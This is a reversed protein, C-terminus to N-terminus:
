DRRRRNEIVALGLCDDERVGSESAWLQTVGYGAAEIRRIAGAVTGGAYLPDHILILGSPSVLRAALQFEEWVHDETHVSDLLAADYQEGAELAATLGEVAGTIRAEMCERINSPLLSWLHDREPFSRLDLTVVRGGQRHAVASALCAVSVGRATGTEIVRVCGNARVLYHLLALLPLVATDRVVAGSADTTGYFSWAMAGLGHWGIWRRLSGLFEGYADNYGAPGAATLPESRSYRGRWELLKQKGRGSFHVVRVPKGRFSASLRAGEERMEIDQVHLQVNYSDDLKVGCDLRALALNFIFQNRWWVDNRREIWQPARPMARVAGDLALLAARSGAFLGDNVIMPYAAEGPTLELEAAEQDNGFYMRRFSDHLTACDRGNGELGVVISGDPCAEVAGLVPKLDGLILMDADLCIFEEADIARAASYLIAKSMPDIRALSRCPIATAGYKAAVRYCEVGGNLVFVAVLADHCNSNAYFSGLMDDLYSEFGPSVVTAVCYRTRPLVNPIEIKARRLCDDLLIPDSVPSGVELGTQLYPDLWVAHCWAWRTTRVRLELTCAGRIPAHLTRAPEGPMVHIASAVERGDALVLFDAHTSRFGVDDNLAAECHFAEYRGNLQFIIRAPPHSSLARGYWRGRVEVRKGEYGLSGRLGLGGYGVESREITLSDLHTIALQTSAAV